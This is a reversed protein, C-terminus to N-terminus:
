SLYATKEASELYEASWSGGSRKRVDGSTVHTHLCVRSLTYLYIIVILTTEYYHFNLTFHGNLIEFHRTKSDTSLRCSVLYYQIIIKAENGLIGFAYRGFARYISTKSWGRDKSAGWWPVGAFIRMHSINGTVVTMPRCRRRQCYPDIKMWIKTTPESLRVHKSVSHM